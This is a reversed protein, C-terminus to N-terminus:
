LPCCKLFLESYSSFLVLYDRLGLQSEEDHMVTKAVHCSLQRLMCALQKGAVVVVVLCVCQCASNFKLVLTM